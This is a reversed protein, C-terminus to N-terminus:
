NLNDNLYKTLGDINIFAMDILSSGNNYRILLHVGKFNPIDFLKNDIENLLDSKCLDLNKYAIVSTNSLMRSFFLADEEFSNKLLYEDKEYYEKFQRLDIQTIRVFISGECAYLANVDGSNANIKDPFNPNEQVAVM